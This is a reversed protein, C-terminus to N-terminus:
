PAGRIARPSRRPPPGSYEVHERPLELLAEHRQGAGELANAWFCAQVTTLTMIAAQKPTFGIDLLLAAAGAAINPELRRLRRVASALVELAKFHSLGARRRLRVRATLADLREDTARLPVGFGDLRLGSEILAESRALRGAEDVRAVELVLRAAGEVVPPGIIADDQYLNAAALGVAPRGFSAVLRPIKLPWIRPDAMTIVVALDDIMGREDETLRRGLVALGLMGSGSENGALEAFVRHGCFWHEDFGAKAVRTEIVPRQTM